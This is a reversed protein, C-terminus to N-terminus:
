NTSLPAASSGTLSAWGEKVNIVKSGSFTVFVIKGPPEGYIWDETDVGDETTQREKLRPKGLALLVADKDMGNIAKKEKIAQQQEPPLTDLYSKVATNKDFDFIPALIKKIGATDLPPVHDHFDIALYTGLSPANTQGQSVPRMTTGMGIMVHDKWSGHHIGGNLELVIKNSEFDIKTIQVIDGVRAAPGLDRGMEAWKNRDYQGTSEFPLPKKTRPLSVRTKANEAMLGRLIEIKDDDSIRDKKEGAVALAAPWLLGASLISACLGRWRRLEFKM